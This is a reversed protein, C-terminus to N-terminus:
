RLFNLDCTQILESVNCCNCQNYSCTGFIFFMSFRLMSLPFPSQVNLMFGRIFSRRTSILLINCILWGLGEGFIFLFVFEIFIFYRITSSCVLDVESSVSLYRRHERLLLSELYWFLCFCYWCFLSKIFSCDFSKSSSRPFPIVMM